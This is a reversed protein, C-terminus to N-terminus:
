TTKRSTNGTRFSRGEMLAFRFRRLGPALSQSFIRHKEKKEFAPKVTIAPNSKRPTNRILRLLL